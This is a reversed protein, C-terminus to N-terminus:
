SDKMAWIIIDGNVLDVSVHVIGGPVTYGITQTDADIADTMLESDAISDIQAILNDFAPRGGNILSVTYSGFLLAAGTVDTGPPQKLGGLGYRKWNTDSPWPVKQSSGQYNREPATSSGGSSGGSNSSSGGKPFMGAIGASVGDRVGRETGRAVSYCGALVIVSTFVVFVLFVIIRKSIM